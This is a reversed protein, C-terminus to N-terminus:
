AFTCHHDVSAEFTQILAPSQGQGQGHSSSDATTLRNAAVENIAVAAICAVLFNKRTM